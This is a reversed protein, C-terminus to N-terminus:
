SITGVDAMHSVINSDRFSKQEVYQAFAYMCLQAM